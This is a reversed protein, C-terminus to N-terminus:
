LDWANYNSWARVRGSCGCVFRLHAYYFGIRKWTRRRSVAACQVLIHTIVHSTSSYTSSHPVDHANADDACIHTIEHAFAYTNSHTIDHACADTISDTIDHAISHTLGDALIDHTRTDCGQV